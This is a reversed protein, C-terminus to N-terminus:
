SEIPKFDKCTTKQGPWFRGCDCAGRGGGPNVSDPKWHQCTSPMVQPRQFARHVFCWPCAPVHRWGDLRPEGTQSSPMWVPGCHQCLAPTDFSPPRIGKRMLAGDSLLSLLALLAPGHDNDQAILERRYADNLADVLGRPYGYADALELLRARVAAPTAVPVPVLEATQKPTPEPKALAALLEPKHDLLRQRVEPTVADAPASYHLKDGDATLTIGADAFERLLSATNM